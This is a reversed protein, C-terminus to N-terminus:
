IVKKLCDFPYKRTTGREALHYISILTLNVEHLQSIVSFEVIRHRCSLTRPGDM